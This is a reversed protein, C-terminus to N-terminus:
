HNKDQIAHIVTEIQKAAARDAGGSDAHREFHLRDYWVGALEFSRKSHGYQVFGNRVLVRASGVNEVRADAEIRLLALEGFASDIVQRVADSAYGKGGASEAIRYGLVASHFHQRKVASLNVRGVLEGAASRLLFQYGKDHAADAMASEIAQAVGDVSYYEPLRANIHQEFFRRNKLEFDPLQHIDATTPSRLSLIM